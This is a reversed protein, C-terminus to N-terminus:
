LSMNSMNWNRDVISVDKIQCHYQIFAFVFKGSVYKTCCMFVMIIEINMIIKLYRKCSSNAMASLGDWKYPRFYSISNGSFQFLNLEKVTNFFWKSFLYWIITRASKPSLYTSPIQSKHSNKVFYKEQM